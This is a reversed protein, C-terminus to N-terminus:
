TTPYFCLRMTWLFVPMQAIKLRLAPYERGEKNRLRKVDEGRMVKEVRNEHLKLGLFILRRIYCDLAFGQLKL